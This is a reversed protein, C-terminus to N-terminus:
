KTGSSLVLVNHSTSAASWVGMVALSWQLHVPPSWWLQTGMLPEKIAGLSISPYRPIDFCAQDTLALNWYGVNIVHDLDSWVDEKARVQESQFHGTKMATRLSVLVCTETTRRCCICKMLDDDGPSRSHKTFLFKFAFALNCVTQQAM